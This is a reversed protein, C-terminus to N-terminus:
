RPFVKTSHIHPPNETLCGVNVRKKERCKMSGSKIAASVTTCRMVSWELPDELGMPVSLFASLIGKWGNKELFSRFGIRIRVSIVTSIM